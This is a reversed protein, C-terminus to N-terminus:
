SYRKLVNKAFELLQEKTANSKMTNALRSIIEVNGKVYGKSSDIRDISSNSFLQGKGLEHTLEIGLYPCFEPLSIDEVTLDFELGAKNAREKAKTIIRVRRGYDTAYYARQSATFSEKNNNYYERRYQKLKDKNKRAYERKNASIKDRNKIGYEKNYQKKEEPTM